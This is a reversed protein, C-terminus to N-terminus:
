EFWIPENEEKENKQEEKKTEPKENEPKEIKKSYTTKLKLEKNEM